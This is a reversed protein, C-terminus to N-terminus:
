QYIGVFSEWVCARSVTGCVHGHLEGVHMGAFSKGCAHGRLEGERMGM